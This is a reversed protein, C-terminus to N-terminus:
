RYNELLDVAVDKFIHAIGALYIIADVGKLIEKWGNFAGIDGVIVSGGRWRGVRAVGIVRSGRSTLYDCVASGIYGTAGTILISRIKKM